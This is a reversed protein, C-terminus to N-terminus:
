DVMDTIFSEGDYIQSIDRHSRSHKLNSKMKGIAIKASRYNTEPTLDPM